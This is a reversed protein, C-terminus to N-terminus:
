RRLWEDMIAKGIREEDSIENVDMTLRKNHRMEVTVSNIPGIHDWERRPMPVTDDDDGDDM